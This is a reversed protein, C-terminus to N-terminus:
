RRLVEVTLIESPQAGERDVLSGFAVVHGDSRLLVTHHAGASAQAYQLSPTSIPPVYRLDIERLVGHLRQAASEMPDRPQPAARPSAGQM